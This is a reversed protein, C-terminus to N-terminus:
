RPIFKVNVISISVSFRNLSNPLRLTLPTSMKNRNNHIFELLITDQEITKLPRTHDTTQTLHFTNHFGSSYLIVRTGEVSTDVWYYNVVSFLYSLITLQRIFM